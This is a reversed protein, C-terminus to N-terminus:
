KERERQSQQIDDKIGMVDRIFVKKKIKFEWCQM